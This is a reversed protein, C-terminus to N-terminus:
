RAAPERSPGASRRVPDRDVAPLDAAGLGLTVDQEVLRGPVQGGPLIGPTPPTDEVEYGVQARPEVRDAPQVVVGLAQQEERVVALERVPQGVRAVGDRADVV